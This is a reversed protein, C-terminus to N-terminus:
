IKSKDASCLKPCPGRKVRTVGNTAASQIGGRNWFQAFLYTSNRTVHSPYIAAAADLLRRCAPNAICTYVTYKYVYVSYDITHAISSRLQTNVYVCLVGWDTAIVSLLSSPPSPTPSYRIELDSPYRLKHIERSRLLYISYIYLRNHQQITHGIYNCM